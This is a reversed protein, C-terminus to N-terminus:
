DEGAVMRIAIREEPDDIGNERLAASCAEITNFYVDWYSGSECWVRVTFIYTDDDVATMRAFPAPDALVGEAKAAADVLVKKVFEADIDNTIKYDLDVRRTPAASYNTVTANMLDGNPVFVQKNDVTMLKTYFISIEKVVGQVGNAEVYDGVKFPRFILIMLGGALNALAGQMALGVALGCSALVAVVSTMPIGLIEIVIIILVVWLLVKLASKIVSKLTEDLNSRDIGKGIAKRLTKMVFSGIILVVLALIIKGGFKTLLDVVGKMFEEM